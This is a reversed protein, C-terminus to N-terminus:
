HFVTYDILCWNQEFNSSMWLSGCVYMHIHKCMGSVGWNNNWCMFDKERIEVCSIYSILVLWVLYNKCSLSTRSKYVDFIIISLWRDAFVQKLFVKNEGGIVEAVGLCM